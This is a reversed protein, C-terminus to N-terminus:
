STVTSGNATVFPALTEHGRQTTTWETADAGTPQTMAAMANVLNQVDAQALHQSNGSFEFGVRQSPDAYWDKVTISDDTGLIEVRLDSGSMEFWLHKAEIGSGFRVKDGAATEGGRDDVMDAGGGRGFKYVDAGKGGTLTDDGAGGDLTDNGGRGYLKDDGDDGLLINKVDNGYLEDDHGSGWLSEIGHYLDGAADGRNPNPVVGSAPRYGSSPQPNNPDQVVNFLDAVVGRSAHRYSAYDNDGEGGYLRDGGAGGKLTDGGVGGYLSDSGDGGELTDNGGRGYLKDDGDDGLLINKVDNGYLEDDHGSGWLSEIGHYLDGAAHRGTNPNVFVGRTNLYGSSQPNDPDDVVNFLDAVVGADDMGEPAHRYAHRYSAYDNDGEGGYLKDRGAGGWLTDKGAGGYLTDKGGVDDSWDDGVIWDDDAGGYLKDGGKGGYLSDRGDGGYLKDDDAEGRLTDNGGRGYLEDDGDDGKLINAVDNGYLYDKHGSGWLSEIGHYCDGAADGTNTHLVVGSSPRYGSSPQPNDPDDVVNFLDAVVGAGDVGEPAGRYSAYDNDGEGGYLKDGGAGGWLTDKGAGGYLTDKGGVDDSWDDGVIWDDDAGGYLKDGGKGGYLSDRGDGGYLKDDDAEGRLTDNGGRGYLEDDGDDGKLINAVDNGYLYDKHGSGWLSEIGHYCDGAADGTNTHLVVGSSPRYGSSPQPNDPDDVVNFLDAVVGAGDVGEPAGRYSAYDNDGEGGYLRDGGAGGYLTDKGGRGDLTDDGDGGVLWDDGEGGRLTVGGNTNAM